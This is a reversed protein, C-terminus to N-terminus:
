KKTTQYLEKWFLAQYKVSIKYEEFIQEVKDIDYNQASTKLLEYIKDDNSGVKKIRKSLQHIEEAQIAKEVYSKYDFDCLKSSITYFRNKVEKDFESFDDSLYIEIYLYSYKKNSPYPQKDTRIGKLLIVFTFNEIHFLGKVEQGDTALIRSEKDTPISVPNNKRFVQFKIRDVKPLWHYVETLQEDIIEWQFSNNNNVM